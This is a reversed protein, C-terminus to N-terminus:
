NKEDKLVNTITLNKSAKILAIYLNNYYRYKTIYDCLKDIDLLTETKKICIDGEISFSSCYCCHVGDVLHLLDEKKEYFSLMKENVNLHPNKGEEGFNDM